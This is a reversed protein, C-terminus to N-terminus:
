GNAPSVVRASTRRPRVLDHMRRPGPLPVRVAPTGPVRSCVGGVILRTSSHQSRTACPVRIYLIGRRLEGCPALRRRDARCHGTRCLPLAVPTLVPGVRVLVSVTDCDVVTLREMRDVGVTDLRGSGNVSWKKRESVVTVSQLGRLRELRRSSCHREAIREPAGPATILM